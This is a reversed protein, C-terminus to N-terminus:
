YYGTQATYWNHYIDFCKGEARSEFLANNAESDDVILIRPPHHM